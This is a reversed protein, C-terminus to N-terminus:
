DEVGRYFDLADAQALAEPKWEEHFNPADVLRRGGDVELSGAGGVVVLRRVGAQRLGDVLSRAADVLTFNASRASIASVVADAGAVVSAVRAPDTVDAGTARSAGVVEHDRRELEAAIRSGIMGTPGFVVIRM